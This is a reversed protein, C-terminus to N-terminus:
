YEFANESKVKKGVTNSIESVQKVTRDMRVSTLAKM